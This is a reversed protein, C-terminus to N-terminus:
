RVEGHVTVHVDHLVADEDQAADGLRERAEVVILLVRRHARMVLDVAVERGAVRQHHEHVAVGDVAAGDVATTAAAVRAVVEREPRVPRGRVARVLVVEDAAVRRDTLQLRAPEPEDTVLDAVVDREGLVHVVVLVAVLDHGVLDTAVQAAVPVRRGRLFAVRGTGRVDDATAGRALARRQGHVRGSSVDRAPGTEGARRRPRREDLAGAFVHEDVSARTCYANCPDNNPDSSGLTSPEKRPRVRTASSSSAHTSTTGPQSVPASSSNLRSSSTTGHAPRRTCMYSLTRSWGRSSADM